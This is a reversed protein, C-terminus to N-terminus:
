RNRGHRFFVTGFKGHGKRNRHANPAAVVSERAVDVAGENLVFGFYVFDKGGIM